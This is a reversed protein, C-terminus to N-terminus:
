TVGGLDQGMLQETWNINCTKVGGRVGLGGQRRQDSVGRSRRENVRGGVWVAFDLVVFNLPRLVCASALDMQGYGSGFEVVVLDPTSAGKNLM